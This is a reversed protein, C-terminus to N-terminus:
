PSLMPEGKIGSLFLVVTSDLCAMPYMSSEDPYSVKSGELAVKWWEGDQEVQQHQDRHVAATPNRTMQSRISNPWLSDDAYFLHNPSHAISRKAGLDVGLSHFYIPQMM